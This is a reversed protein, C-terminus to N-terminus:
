SNLVGNVTSPSSFISLNLFLHCWKQPRLTCRMHICTHTSFTIEHFIRTATFSIKPLRLAAPTNLKDTTAHLEPLSHYTLVQFHLSYRILPWCRYSNIIATYFYLPSPFSSFIKILNRYDGLFEIIDHAKLFLPMMLLYVSTTYYFPHTVHTISSYSNHREWAHVIKDVLIQISQDKWIKFKCWHFYSSWHPKPTSNLPDLLIM